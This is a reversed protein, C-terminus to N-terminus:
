NGTKEFVRSNSAVVQAIRQGDIYINQGARVADILADLKNLMAKDDKNEKNESGGGANNGGGTNINPASGVMGMEHLAKLTPLFPTLVTLGLALAGLGLSFGILGPVSLLLASSFLALGPAMSVLGAMGEFSGSVDVGKLKEMATGFPILAAGLLAIAGAGAIFALAGIGSLMISGLVLAAASLVILAGSMAIISGADVGALLSFAYATPILAVGLIAMALAGAIINPAFNGMIAAATGLVILTAAGLAVAPWEIDPGFQQAAKAFVFMAGAIILMAAAGKLIAGMNKGLGGMTKGIGAGPTKPMKPM